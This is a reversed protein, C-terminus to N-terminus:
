FQESFRAGVTQLKTPRGEPKCMDSTRFGPTAMGDKIKVIDYDVGCAAVPKMFLCSANSIDRQIGIEFKGDACAKAAKEGRPSDLTFLIRKFTVKAEVADAIGKVAAGMEVSGIFVFSYLPKTCQADAFFKYQTTHGASGLLYIRQLHSIEETPGLALSTCPASTWESPGSPASPPPTATQAVAQAAWLLLAICLSHLNQKFM